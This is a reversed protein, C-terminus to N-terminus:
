EPSLPGADDAANYLGDPTATSEIPLKYIPSQPLLQTRLTVIDVPIIVVM